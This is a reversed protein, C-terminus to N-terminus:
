VLPREKKLPPIVKVSGDSNVKLTSTTIRKRAALRRRGHRDDKRGSPSSTQIGSRQGIWGKPSPTTLKIKKV